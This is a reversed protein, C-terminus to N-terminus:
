EDEILYFEKIKKKVVPLELIQDCSPRKKSDVNILTKIIEHWNIEFTFGFQDYLILM